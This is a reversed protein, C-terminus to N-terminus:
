RSEERSARRKVNGKWRSWTRIRRFGKLEAELRRRARHVRIAAANPTIALATGIEAHTLGEWALLRLVEQDAPPLRALAELVPTALVAQRDTLRGHEVQLRGLLRRRRMTSRRQNALVHRAVGYLWPLRDADEAPLDAMRRWVVTFTEAVVDEADSWNATRRRAYALLGHFHAEFLRAFTARQGARDDADM